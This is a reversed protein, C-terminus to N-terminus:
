GETAQSIVDEIGQMVEAMDDADDEQKLFALTKRLTELMDGHNNVAQVIFAANEKHNDKASRYGLTALTRQKDGTCISVFQTGDPGMGSRIEYAWPTPTHVVSETRAPATKAAANAKHNGM